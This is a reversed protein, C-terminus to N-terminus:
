TVGKAVNGVPLSMSLFLTPGNFCRDDVVMKFPAQSTRHSRSRTSCGGILCTGQWAWPRLDHIRGEVAAAAPTKGFRAM